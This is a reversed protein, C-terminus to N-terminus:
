YNILGKIVKGCNNCRPKTERVVGNCEGEPDKGWMGCMDFSQISRYGYGEDSGCYPCRTLEKNDITEM